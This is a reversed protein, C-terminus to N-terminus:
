IQFIFIARRKSRLLRFCHNSIREHLATTEAFGWDNLLVAHAYFVSCTVVDVNWHVPYYPGTGIGLFFQCAFHPSVRVWRLNGVPEAVNLSVSVFWAFGFRLQAPHNTQ